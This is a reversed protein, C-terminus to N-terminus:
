LNSSYPSHKSTFLQVFLILYDYYIKVKPNGILSKISQSPMTQAEHARYTVADTLSEQLHQKIKQKQIEWANQPLHNQRKILAAIANQNGWSESGYGDDFAYLRSEELLFDLEDNWRSTTYITIGGNFIRLVIGARSAKILPELLDATLINCAAIIDVDCIGVICNGFRNINDFDLNCKIINSGENAKNEEQQNVTANLMWLHFFRENEDAYLVQAADRAKKLDEIIEDTNNFRVTAVYSLGIVRHYNRILIGGNVMIRPSWDEGGMVGYFTTLNMKESNIGVM